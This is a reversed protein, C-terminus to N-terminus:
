TTHWEMCRGKQIVIILNIMILNYCRINIIIIIIIIIAIIAAIIM